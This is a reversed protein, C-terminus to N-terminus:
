RSAAEAHATKWRHGSSGPTSPLSSNSTRSPRAGAPIVTHVTTATATPAPRARHTAITPAVTAQAPQYRRARPSIWRLRSARTNRLGPACGSGAAAPSFMEVRRSSLSAMAMIPPQPKSMIDPSMKAPPPSAIRSLTSTWTVRTTMAGSATTRTRACSARARAYRMRTRLLAAVAWTVPVMWSITDAVRAILAAPRSRSTTARSRRSLSARLVAIIRSLTCLRAMSETKLLVALTPEPRIRSSAAPRIRDPSNVVPSKTSNEM